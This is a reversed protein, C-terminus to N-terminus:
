PTLASVNTLLSDSVIQTVLGNIIINKLVAAVM